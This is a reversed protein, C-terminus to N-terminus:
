KIKKFILLRNNAPMAVDRVLSLSNNIALSEVDEHNRLGSGPDRQKLLNDFQQNSESTYDSNYNFPGYIVFLGDASLLSKVGEVMAVVEHWHMIHCTNATFVGDFSSTPWEDSEVDLVIPFEINSLNSEEIWQSIGVHNEIRDSTHWHLAPLNEAFFVAHQGTGSGIELVNRCLSFHSSIENLIPVKNNDCAQSYPKM